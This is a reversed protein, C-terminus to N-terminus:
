KCILIVYCTMDLTVVGYNARMNQGAGVVSSVEVAYATNQGGITHAHKPASKTWYKAGSKLGQFPEDVLHCGNKSLHAIKSWQELTPISWTKGTKSSMVKAYKVAESYTKDYGDDVVMWTLGTSMHTVTSSNNLAYGDYNKIPREDHTLRTRNLPDSVEISYVYEAGEGDKDSYTIFFTYKGPKFTGGKVHLTEGKYFPTQTPNYKDGTLLAWSINEAIVETNDHVSAKLIIDQKPQYVKSLAGDVGMEQPIAVYVTPTTAVEVEEVGSLATYGMGFIALISVIVMGIEIKHKM